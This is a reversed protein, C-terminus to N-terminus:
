DDDEIVKWIVDNIYDWGAGIMSDTFWHTELGNRVKSINEDNAEHGNEELANAIDKDCWRVIGFWDEEQQDDAPAAEAEEQKGFWEDMLNSFTKEMEERTGLVYTDDSYYLSIACKKGIYSPAIIQNSKCRAQIYTNVIQLVNADKIDIVHVDDEFGVCFLDHIGEGSFARSAVREFGKRAAMTASEEYKRCEEESKFFTGDSAKYGYTEEITRKLIEM